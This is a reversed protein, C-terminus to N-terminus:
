WTSKKQSAKKATKKLQELFPQHNDVATIKGNSLKALTVTQMGPGCGIDLIRPSEPLGDLTLYAKKPSENDGPGERPLNSHVEFFLKHTPKEEIKRYGSTNKM